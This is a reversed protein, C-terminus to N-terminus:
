CTTIKHKNRAAAQFAKTLAEGDMTDDADDASKDTAKGAVKSYTLDVPLRPAEYHLGLQRM